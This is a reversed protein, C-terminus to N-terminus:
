YIEFPHCAIGYVQNWDNCVTWQPPMGEPLDAADIGVHLHMFSKCMSVNALLEDRERDFAESVGRYPSM